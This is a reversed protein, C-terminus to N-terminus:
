LVKTHNVIFVTFNELPRFNVSKKDFMKLSKILFFM